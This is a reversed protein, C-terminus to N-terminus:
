FFNYTAFYVSGRKNNDEWKIQKQATTHTNSITFACIRSSISLSFVSESLPSFSLSLLFYTCLRMGQTKQTERKEEKQEEKQTTTEAVTEQGQIESVESIEFCEQHLHIAQTIMSFKENWSVINENLCSLSHVHTGMERMSDVLDLLKQHIAEM